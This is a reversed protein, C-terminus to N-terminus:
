GTPRTRSRILRWIRMGRRRRFKCIDSCSAADPADRLQRWILLWTWPKSKAPVSVRRALAFATPERERAWFGSPVRVPCQRIELIYAM